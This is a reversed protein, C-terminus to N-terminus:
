EYNGELAEMIDTRIATFAMAERVQEFDGMDSCYIQWEDTPRSTDLINELTETDYMRFVYEEVAERAAEDWHLHPNGKVRSKAETLLEDFCDGYSKAM